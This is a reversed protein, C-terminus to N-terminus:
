LSFPAWTVPLTDTFESPVITVSVSVDFAASPAFWNAMVPTVSLAPLRMLGFEVRTFKSLGYRTLTRADRLGSLPPRQAAGREQGEARPRGNIRVLSRGAASPRYARRTLLKWRRHATARATAAAQVAAGGGGVGAGSGDGGTASGEGLGLARGLTTRVAVGAGTRM